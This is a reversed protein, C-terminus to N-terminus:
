EGPDLFQQFEIRYGDPARVFFTYIGFEDLRHPPSEIDAGRAVLRAHWADVDDVVLSVLSGQPEVVRDAFAECVGIAAGDGVAFIRSKGTDRLCELGLTAAYFDASSDLAQTYVWAILRAVPLSRQTM